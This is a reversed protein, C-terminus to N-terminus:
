SITRLADGAAYVSGCVLVLQGERAIRKALRIGDEVTVATLTECSTGAEQALEEPPLSRPLGVSAAILISSRSAVMPICTRYDKDKMMAMVTIIKRDPLLEDLTQCLATIGAPNHGADILLDPSGPVYQLRGPWSVRAFGKRVSEPPLHLVKCVEWAAAANDMQYRGLLPITMIEGDYHFSIGHLDYSILVASMARTCPSGQRKAVDELVTQASSEQRALVVPCGPKIIGAKEAAIESVTNGLVGTHDLSIPTVCCVEPAPLINTADCRGGLGVEIVAYEVSCKSFALFGIATVLEFENVPEFGAQELATEQVIVAEFCATLLEESIPVRDVQIRERFDVLYPSTFLGVRHGAARLAAEVLACVSGKGNTGAVHVAKFSNQPNGLRELLRRIRDLTPGGTSFAKRSHIASLAESYTM